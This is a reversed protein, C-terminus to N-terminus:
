ELESILQSACQKRKVEVENTGETRARELSKVFEHNEKIKEKIMKKHDDSGCSLLTGLAVYSRFQAEPDDFAAIRDPIVTSLILVGIEDNRRMSMLSMNLLLTSTAVQINKNAMKLSTINELLDIRSEYLLQEGTNHTCLNCLFRLSVLVNNPASCNPSLYEMLKGIIDSGRMAIESNSKEYKVAMRM